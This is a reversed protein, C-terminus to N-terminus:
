PRQVHRREGDPHRGPHSPGRGPGAGRVRQHRGGVPWLHFRQRDARRRRRGRLRVIVLVPGFIEEQAITAKPHVDAFLTPEVFYGKPLSRRRVGGGCVLRAGEAKGKEIYGLVRERQKASILPGQLNGPDWPDGYTVAAMSDAAMQVAEDYRSRHVLLRTTIACGQGSHTCVGMASIPVASALDADELMIKASKGGLELFVKKVTDSAKAMIRRGTVTSGTFTIMDVRADTTLVEGVMHDSSAVVNVVGAPFDTEEAILRGLFTASWPTDPAPKLVLTNGAALAPGMKALNLYLPFNWPTIAGVVGIPERRILRRQPQGFVERVPLWHEYEYQDPQAAWYALDDIPGDVMMIYTLMLPSGVEAVVIHRLEEKHAELAAHFQELCRRRFAHDQAWTTEDFARRAAAIAEAMDATTGDATVGLSQETAPDINDFTQGSSAEVLKGDILLRPEGRM